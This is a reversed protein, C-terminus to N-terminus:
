QKKKLAELAPALEKAMKLDEGLVHRMFLSSIFDFLEEAHFKEPREILKLKINEATKALKDHMEKHKEYSPNKAMRLLREELHFHYKTYDYVDEVIVELDTKSTKNDRIMSHLNNLLEVLRKHDRDMAEIGTEMKSSWEILAM